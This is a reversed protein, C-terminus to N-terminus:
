LRIMEKLLLVLYDYVRDASDLEMYEKPSHVHHLNPGFSIIDTNPYKKAFFGCELGAHIASIEAKQGYKKQYVALALERLPSTPQYEWGPYGNHVMGDIRCLKSLLINKEGIWDALSKVSSRISIVFSVINDTTRIIGLNQSSEVLHQIEQSMTQVGNPVMSLFSIVFSKDNETFVSKVFDIKRFSLCLSDVPALEQLLSQELNQLVSELQSLNTEEINIVAKADRPIANPKSGGEVSILDFPIVQDLQYLVRGIIKNANGFGSAINMGSHGGHLNSVSLEVTCNKQSLTRTGELKGQFDSGGASSVYFVGEEESDLNLLYKGKLTNERLNEAGYMTTEEQTTFIAEIEPHSLSHDSLVAMAYAVGIGNDAGLTTNNARVISGEEILEIGDTDFNHTSDPTKECVMDMHGQLIVGPLHEYGKSAPKQIVINGSVDEQFAHLGHEKAFNLLFQQIKEEKGSERPILSLEKFFDYYTKM